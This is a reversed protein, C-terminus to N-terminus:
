IEGHRKVSLQVNCFSTDQPQWSTSVARAIVWNRWVKFPKEDSIYTSFDGTGGEDGREEKPRIKALDRPPLPRLLSRPYKKGACRNARRPAFIPGSLLFLRLHDRHYKVHFTLFSSTSPLNRFIRNLILLSSYRSNYNLSSRCLMLLFPFKYNRCGTYSLVRTIRSTISKASLPFATIFLHYGSLAKTM